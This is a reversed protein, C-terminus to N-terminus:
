QNLQSLIFACQIENHRQPPLCEFLINNQIDILPNPRASAPALVILRHGM